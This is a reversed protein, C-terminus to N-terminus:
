YDDAFADRMSPRDNRSRRSPKPKGTDVHYHDPDTRGRSRRADRSNSRSRSRRRRPSRSRTRSRRHRSPRNYADEYYEDDNHYGDEGYYRDDAYHSDHQKGSNKSGSYRPRDGHYGCDGHYGRGGYSGRGFYGRGGGRGRGRGGYHGRGGGGHFRGYGGQNEASSASKKALKKEGDDGTESDDAKKKSAEQTEMIQKIKGSNVDENYINSMGLTIDSLTLDVWAVKNQSIFKRQMSKPYCFMYWGNKKAQSPEPELGDLSKALNMIATFRRQVTHPIQDTAKTFLAQTFAAYIVDRPYDTQAFENLIGNVMKTVDEETVDAGDTRGADLKTKVEDYIAELDGSLLTRLIELQERPSKVMAVFAEKFPKITLRHTAELGLQGDSPTIHRKVYNNNSDRGSVEVPKAKVTSNDVPQELSVLPDPSTMSLQAAFMAGMQDKPKVDSM